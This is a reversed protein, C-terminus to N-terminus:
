RDDAVLECRRTAGDCQAVRHDVVVVEPCIPEPNACAFASRYADVNKRSVAALGQKCCGEAPVAACDSDVACPGQYPVQTDAATDLAGGAPASACAGVVPAFLLPALV